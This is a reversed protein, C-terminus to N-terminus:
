LFFFFTLLYRGQYADKPILPGMDLFNNKMTQFEVSKKWMCEWMETVTYGESRIFETRALTRQYLEGMELNLKANVKLPNPYCKPCGHFYCGHFQYVTNSPEHYGDVYGCCLKKEGEESRAHRIEDYNPLTSLWAISEKSYQRGQVSNLFVAITNPTMYSSRYLNMCLAPLTPYIFPDINETELFQDRFKLCGKRLIDVDSICYEKLEKKLEFVYGSSFFLM